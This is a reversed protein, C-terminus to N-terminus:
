FHTILLASLEQLRLKPKCMDKSQRSTHLWESTLTVKRFRSGNHHSKPIRNLVKFLYTFIIWSTVFLCVCVRMYINGEFNYFNDRHCLSLLLSFFQFFFSFVFCIFANITLPFPLATRHRLAMHSFVSPSPPTDHQSWKGLNDRRSRLPQISNNDNM